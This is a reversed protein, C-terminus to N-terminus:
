ADEARGTRMGALYAKLDAGGTVEVCETAIQALLEVAGDKGQALGVIVPDRKRYFAQRLASAPVIDLQNKSHTPLTLVFLGRPALGEEISILLSQADDLIGAGIYPERILEM